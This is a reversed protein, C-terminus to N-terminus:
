EKGRVVVVPCSAHHVCHHSVSGLVLESFGGRGRSGVVLMDAGESREILGHATLGVLGEALVPVGPKDGLVEDCERHAFHDGMEALREPDASPYVVPGFGVPFHVMHVVHLLAGRHRAEAAAWRLAQRAPESGDVGVVIRGGDAGLGSVGEAAWEGSMGM